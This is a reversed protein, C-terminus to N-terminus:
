RPRAHPAAAADLGALLHDGVARLVEFIALADVIASGTAPAARTRPGSGAM